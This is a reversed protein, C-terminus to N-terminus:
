LASPWWEDKKRKPPKDRPPPLGIGNKTDTPTGATNGDPGADSAAPVVPPTVPVPKVEPTPKQAVRTPEASPPVKAGDGGLALWVAAACLIVAVAGVIWRRASPSTGRGAGTGGDKSGSGGLVRRSGGGREARGIEARRSKLEEGVMAEVYAGVTRGSALPLGLGELAEAFALATPYRKAADRHTAKRIVADLTPPVDERLSALPPVKGRLVSAVTDADTEGAFLTQGALTEWLVVGLSFVDTQRSAKGNTLQEPAMYGLKGKVHGERTTSAQSVAKAIGFDLIRSIGDVGVMVNHPTADRHIVELSTGDADTLEHAAHVGSLADIVIRLAVDVPVRGGRERTATVLLSLREGEVYEMVLYLVDAEGVDLTPVVNPHHIRAALLAENLFMAKFAKDATLHPHCSKVAVLRTFGGMGLARGLHVTGMGGTGIQLLLEYARTPSAPAYSIPEAM